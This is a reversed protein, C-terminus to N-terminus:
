ISIAYTKMEQGKSIKCVKLDEDENSGQILDILTYGFSKDSSVTFGYPYLDSGLNIEFFTTDRLYLLTKEFVDKFKANEFFSEKKTNILVYTLEINTYQVVRKGILYFVNKDYEVKNGNEREVLKIECEPVFDKFKDEVVVHFLYAINDNLMIIDEFKSYCRLVTVDNGSRQHFDKKICDTLSNIYGIIRRSSLM